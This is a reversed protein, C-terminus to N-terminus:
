PKLMDWLLSLNKSVNERNPRTTTWVVHEDASANQDLTIGWMGTMQNPLLSYRVDIIRQPNHPDIAVHKNSFWRFREIDRAQQSATDLWPFHRALDLKETSTGEIIRQSALIRIADVYYRGDYEYVSKWTIINGMSPKVGLGLPQHGRSQALQLAINEARQNQMLGLGLYFFAYATAVVAVKSSRKLLAIILLFILPVTFLPDIVSV